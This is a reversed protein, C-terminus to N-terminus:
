CLPLIGYYVGQSLAGARLYAILAGPGARLGRLQPGGPFLRRDTTVVASSTTPPPVFGSDLLHPKRAVFHSISVRCFVRTM